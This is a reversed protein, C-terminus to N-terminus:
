FPFGGNNGSSMLFPESKVRSSELSLSTSNTEPLINGWESSEILSLETIPEQKFYPIARDREPSVAMSESRQHLKTVMSASEDKFRECLAAADDWRDGYAELIRIVRNICNIARSANGARGRTPFPPIPPEDPRPAYTVVPAVGNLLLEENERLTAVFLSGLFYVRLADHFTYFATSARNMAIPLLKEAYTACYEFTLVRAPESIVYSRRTPALAYIYSYLAELEFQERIPASVSEPITESWERTNECVGYIYQDPSALPSRGSQFLEQYWSSQLQRLRFLHLASDLPQQWIQKGGQFGRSALKTPISPLAVDTSEDTFSFARAHVMSISRDLTYVCYFVRRRRDLQANNSLVQKPPDHHLGIDVAARSAIGILYWSDFHAPDLMSYVVLFLIAQIGPISGPTLVKDARKLAAAVYGEAKRYEADGHRRSLLSSAIALIMNVTWHDLHSGNGQYIADISAFISTESFFPLIAFVSSLYQRILPMAAYRPPLQITDSPLLSHGASASLVLRSFSMMSTFGYFDRTTANVSMYGFDSVLEEMDATERKNASSQSGTPLATELSTATSTRM